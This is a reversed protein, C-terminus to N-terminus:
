NCVPLAKSSNSNGSPKEEKTGGSNQEDASNKAGDSVAGGFNDIGGGITSQQILYPQASKTNSALLNALLSSDLTNTGLTGSAKQLSDITTPVTDPVTNIAPTAIGQLITPTAGSFKAGPSILVRGTPASLNIAGGALVSLAATSTVVANTGAILSISGLASSLSGNLTITDTGLTSTFANLTIADRASLASNITIPSHANVSISGSSVDINGDVVIAGTNDLAVNGGNNSIAGVRLAGPQTTNTLVIDGSTSNVASFKGVTNAANLVLGGVSTTDLAAATIAGTQGIAGGSKLIVKGGANNIAGVALSGSTTLAIDASGTNTAAFKGITNTASDLRTGTASLTTLSTATVPGAGELVAGTDAQLVANTANLNSINLDGAAQRLSVASTNFLLSGGTQAFSNSVTFNSNGTLTGATMALNAISSVGKLNISGGDITLTGAGTLGSNLNLIGTSGVSIVGNDTTPSNGFISLTSGGLVNLTGNNRFNTTASNGLINGSAFAPNISASNTIVGFNTITGAGVTASLGGLQTGEALTLTGTNNLAADNTLALKSSTAKSVGGSLLNLTRGSLTESGSLNLNSVDYSPSGVAGAITGGLWTLNTATLKGSGQLTGGTVVVNALSVDANLNTTGLNNADSTSISVSAIGGNTATETITAGANINQTRAYNLSTFTTHNSGFTLASTEGLVSANVNFAGTHSGGGALFLKGDTVNVVGANNFAVGNLADYAGGLNNQTPSVFPVTSALPPLYGPITSATAPAPLAPNTSIITGANNIVSSGATKDLTYLGLTSGNSVTLTGANNLVASNKFVLDSYTIKSSGGSLLNLTRGDLAVTGHSYYGYGYLNSFNDNQIQLNTVDYAPNNANGTIVGGFWKFDTATLKGTGQLTGGYMSVNALSLDVNLNTINKSNNLNAYYYGYGDSLNM